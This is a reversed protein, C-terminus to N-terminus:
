GERADHRRRREPAPLHLVRALEADPVAPVPEPEAHPTVSRHSGTLTGYLDIQERVVEGIRRV